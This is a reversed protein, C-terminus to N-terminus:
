TLEILCLFGCMVNGLDGLFTDLHDVEGAFGCRSWWTTTQQMISIRPLAKMHIHNFINQDRLAIQLCTSWLVILHEVNWCWHRILLLISPPHGLQFTEIGLSNEEQVVMHLKSTPDSSLSLNNPLSKPQGKPESIEELIVGPIRPAALNWLTFSSNPSLYLSVNLLNQKLFCYLALHLCQAKKQSEHTYRVEPFFCCVLGLFEGRDQCSYQFTVGVNVSGRKVHINLLMSNYIEGKSHRRWPHCQPGWAQNFASPGPNM